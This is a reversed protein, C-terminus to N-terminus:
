NEEESPGSDFLGPADSGGAPETEPEAVPPETAAVEPLADPGVYLFRELLRNYESWHGPGAQRRAEAMMFLKADMDDIFNLLMAEGTKPRRPSGFEYVGHHSLILHRLQRAQLEPFDKLGALKADLRRVGLVVHGELRGADTYDIPPGLTFEEVKGIDHLLAGAVLLEAQIQGGYLPAIAQALSVLSVTHEILGHVYAHHAGKAAPAAEFAARFERDDVFIAELLRKLDPNSISALAADLKTKLEKLPIPSAPLFSAPDAGNEKVLDSLVVQIRGRYSDVRGSARVVMGPALGDLIDEARDWLKAEVQGTRDGLRLAGYTKGNKTNLLQCRLLLYAGDLNQGEQLDAVERTKGSVSL